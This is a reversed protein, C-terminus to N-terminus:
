PAIKDPSHARALKTAPSVAGLPRVIVPAAFYGGYFDSNSSELFSMMKDIENRFIDRV